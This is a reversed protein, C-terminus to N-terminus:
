EAEPDYMRDLRNWHDDHQDEEENFGLRVINCAIFSNGSTPHTFTAWNDFLNTDSTSIEIETGDDSVTKNYSEFPIATKVSQSKLVQIIERVTWIGTIPKCLIHM